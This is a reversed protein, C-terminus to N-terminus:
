QPDKSNEDNDEPTKRCSLLLIALFTTVHINSLQLMTQTFNQLMAQCYLVSKRVCGANLMFNMQALLQNLQGVDHEISISSLELGDLTM